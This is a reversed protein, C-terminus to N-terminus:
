VLDRVRITLWLHFQTMLGGDMPHSERNLNSLSWETTSKAHEIQEIALM